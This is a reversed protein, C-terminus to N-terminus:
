PAAINGQFGIIAHQVVLQRTRFLACNHVEPSRMSAAQMEPEVTPLPPFCGNMGKLLAYFIEAFGGNARWEAL